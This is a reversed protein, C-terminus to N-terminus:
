SAKNTLTCLVFNKINEFFFEFTNALAVLTRASQSPMSWATFLQNIFLIWQLLGFIHICWDSSRMCPFYNHEWLREIDSQVIWFGHHKKAFKLAIIPMHKCTTSPLHTRALRITVAVHFFTLLLISGSCLQVGRFDFFDHQYFEVM